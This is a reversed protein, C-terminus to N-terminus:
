SLFNVLEIKPLTSGVLRIFEALTHVLVSNQTQDKALFAMAEKNLRDAEEKIKKEPDKKSNYFSEYLQTFLRLTKEGLQVVEGKVKCRASKLFSHIAYFNRGMMHLFMIIIYQDLGKESTITHQKYLIRRCFSAFTSNDGHLDEIRTHTAETLKGSLEELCLEGLLTVTRWIKRLIIDFDEQNESTIDKITCYEKEQEIIEYGILNKVVEKVAIIDNEHYFNLHIVDYGSIYLNRILNKIYLTYSSPLDLSIEKLQESLVGPHLVLNREQITVDLEELTQLNQEKVWKM